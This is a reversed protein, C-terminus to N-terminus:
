NGSQSKFRNILNINLVEPSKAPANWNAQIEDKLVMFIHRLFAAKEKSTYAKPWQTRYLYSRTPSLLYHPTTDNWGIAKHLATFDRAEAAYLDKGQAGAFEVTRRMAQPDQAYMVAVVDAFLEHYPSM